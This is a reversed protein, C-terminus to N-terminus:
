SKWNREEYKIKVFNFIFHEESAAWQFFLYIVLFDTQKHLSKEYAFPKNRKRKVKRFDCLKIM